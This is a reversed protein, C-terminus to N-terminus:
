RQNEETKEIKRENEDNSACYSFRDSHQSSASIRDTLDFFNQGENGSCLDYSERANRKSMLM